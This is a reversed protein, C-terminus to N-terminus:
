SSVNTTSRRFLVPFFLILTVLILIILQGGLSEATPFFGVIEFRFSFPVASVSILGSEQLSHIGKGTLVVALLGVLWSAYRFLYRTPIRRSSRLVVFGLGLVITVSALTASILAVGTEGGDDITLASLFLVSEFAERFVAFFALAFLGLLSGHGLQRNLKTDIFLSWKKASTKDHLWYGVYLLVVVAFISIAGEMIEREAAGIQILMDALFWSAIGVLVATIWGGHVWAAAWKQEATRITALMAIVILFAELGERLLISTAMTFVFWPSHESDQMTDRAQVIYTQAQAIAAEVEGASVRGSIASRVKMMQRELEVALGPDSAALKPEVPEVGELYAVIAKQLAAAYRESGYLNRADKLHDSAIDLPGGRELGGSKTRMKAVTREPRTVGTLAMEAELEADNLTAIRELAVDIGPDAVSQTSTSDRYAARLSKVFFALNWVDRDSLKEFASMATGSVGLRITNFAQYPAISSIRDGNVFDAPRPLLTGALPGDGAGGAGHCSSCERAYLEGGIDLDPWRSPTIRLGTIGIIRRRLFSADVAIVEPDVHRRIKERLDVVERSVAEDRSLIGDSILDNLLTIATEAFQSIEEFEVSDAVEGNLIADGYDQAIYDLIHVLSRGTENDSSPQAGVNAPRSALGLVFLLLIPTQLLIRCPQFYM